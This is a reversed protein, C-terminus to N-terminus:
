KRRLTKRHRRSRTKRKKSASKTHRQRRTKRRRIGGAYTMEYTKECTNKCKEECENKYEKGFGFEEEEENKHLPNQKTIEFFNSPKNRNTHFKEPLFKRRETESM